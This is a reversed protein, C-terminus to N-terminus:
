ITCGGGECENTAEIAEENDLEVMRDNVAEEASDFDINGLDFDMDM